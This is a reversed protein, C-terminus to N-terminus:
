LQTYHIYETLRCYIEMVHGLCIVAGPSSQERAGVEWTAREWGGDRSSAFSAIIM